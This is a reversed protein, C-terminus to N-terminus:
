FEGTIQVLREAVLTPDGICLGLMDCNPCVAHPFRVGPNQPFVGNSSCTSIELAEKKAKEGAAEKAEDSIIAPLFQIRQKTVHELPVRLGKTFVYDALLEAKAAVAGKGKIESKKKTYEEYTAQNLLVVEKESVDLVTHQLDSLFHFSGRLYNVKDGAEVRTKNKVLVLFSVTSTGKAWAYARLQGDLAALRPDTFYMNASTKIDVIIKRFTQAASDTGGYDAKSLPIELPPLMHHDTSPYAVMDLKATFELDEHDTGPFLPINLEVQFKANRVPLCPRVLEYLTLMEVGMKYHDAWDGSKETFTVEPSDKLSFWIAKFEDIGTGPEFNKEHHFQIASEIAKGFQFASREERSVWGDIRKHQFYRPCSWDQGASYSHRVRAQGKNNTYLLAM